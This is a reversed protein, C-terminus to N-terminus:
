VHFRARAHCIVCYSESDTVQCWYRREVSVRPRERPWHRRLEHQLDGDDRNDLHFCVLVDSRETPFAFASDDIM